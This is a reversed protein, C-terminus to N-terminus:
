PSSLPVWNRHTYSPYRYSLSMYIYPGPGQTPPQVCSQHSGEQTFLILIAFHLFHIGPHTVVLILLIPYWYVTYTYCFRTLFAM